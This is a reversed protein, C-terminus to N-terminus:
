TKKTEDEYTATIKDGSVEISTVTGATIDAAIQSLPVEEDKDVIYQRVLSYGFSLVLFVAFAAALQIWISPGGSAPQGGGPGPLGRPKRPQKESNAMCVRM